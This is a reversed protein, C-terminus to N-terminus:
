DTEMADGAPPADGEGENGDPGGAVERERAQRARTSGTEGGLLELWVGV